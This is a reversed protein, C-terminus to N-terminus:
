IRSARISSRGERKREKGKAAIQDNEWDRRIVWAVILGLPGLLLGVLCGTGAKNARNLIVAGVLGFVSWLLAITGM